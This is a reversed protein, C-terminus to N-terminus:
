RGSPFRSHVPPHVTARAAARQDHREPRGRLRVGVDPM